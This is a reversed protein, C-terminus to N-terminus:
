TLHSLNIITNILINDYYVEGIALISDINLNSYEIYYKKRNKAKWFIRKNTFIISNKNKLDKIKFLLLFREEKQLDQVQRLAKTVRDINYKLNNDQTLKYDKKKNAVAPSIYVEYQDTSDILSDALIETIQPNDLSNNAIYTMAELRQLYNNDRTKSNNLVSWTGYGILLAIVSTGATIATLGGMLSIISTTAAAGSLSGGIVLSNIATWAVFMSISSGVVGTFSAIGLNVLDARDMQSVAVLSVLGAAGVLAAGGTMVALGGLMGLGGFAVSGGGLFALTANTAASGSISNIAVGTATEAGIKSIIASSVGVIGSGQEATKM